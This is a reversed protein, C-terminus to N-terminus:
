ESVVGALVQVRAAPGSSSDMTVGMRDSNGYSTGTLSGVQEAASITVAQDVSGNKRLSFSANAGSAGNFSYYKTTVRYAPVAEHEQTPTGAGTSGPELWASLYHNATSVDGAWSFAALGRLSMELTVNSGQPGTGADFEIAVQDGAAYSTGGTTWVGTAADLTVTEVVSGNKVIKFDTTADAAQTNWALAKDTCAAPVMHEVAYDITADNVVSTETPTGNPHFHRGATTVSAGYHLVYGRSAATVQNAIVLKASGCDVTSSDLSVSIEDGAAVATSLDFGKSFYTATATLSACVISESVSGNKRIGFTQNGSASCEFVARDLTGAVTVKNETSFTDTTSSAASASLGRVNLRRTTTTGVAGAWIYSQYASALSGQVISDTAVVWQDGTCICRLLQNPQLTALPLSNQDVVAVTFAGGSRNLIWFWRASVSPTPLTCTRNATPSFVQLVDDGAVLTTDADRADTGWATATPAGGSAPLAQMSPLTAAGNATLVYGSTAGGALAGWTAAGRAILTGQTSGVLADLIASLTRWATAGAGTTGLIENAAGPLPLPTDLADM